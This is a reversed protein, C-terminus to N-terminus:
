NLNGLTGTMETPSFEEVMKPCLVQLLGISLGFFFRSAIIVWFNPLLSLGAAFMVFFNVCLLVKRKGYGLLLPACFASLISGIQTASTAITMFYPQAWGTSENFKFDEIVLAGAANM